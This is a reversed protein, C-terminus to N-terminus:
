VNRRRLSFGACALGAVALVVSTPEPVAAIALSNFGTCAQGNCTLSPAVVTAKGTLADLTYTRQEVEAISWIVGTAPDIDMGDQGSVLASFGFPGVTTTAATAANITILTDANSWGYLAGNYSGLSRVRPPSTFDGVKTAAGTSTNVTFLSGLNGGTNSSMYLTNGLFALGMDNFSGSGLSGVATAAGTAINISLLQNTNDDVGFLQGQANFALGDIDSYGLNTGIVTGTGTLLDFRVLKDAGSVDWATYGVPGAPVALVAGSALAVTFLFLSQITRKL